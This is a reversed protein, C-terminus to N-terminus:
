NNRNKIVNYTTYKECKNSVLKDCTNKFEEFTCTKVNTKREEKDRNLDLKASLVGWSTSWWGTSVAKYNWVTWSYNRKKFLDFGRQWQTKEEFFTFEGILVPVNYDRTINWFDTVIYFLDYNVDDFNYWHYEYQVNKWNYDKPNPLNAFTWCGEMTIVHNDNNDRIVKYLKDFYDWIKPTTTGNTTETPENLLDYSAITASLDSRTNMYHTSIYEWCDVVSEMYTENTWFSAGFETTGSHELGNQSGPVGHLDLIIYLDNEKASEIIKDIYYFAKDEDKRTLDDNLLNRWYIPLRICNLNLEKLTRYDSDNLWSNFYHDFWTDFNADGCNPNTLLAERFDEETFEPYLINNDNDKKITGDENFMPDTAFAGLWGEQIFINGFNVGELRLMNGNEDYLSRNHSQVLGTNNKITTAQVPLAYNISYSSVSAVFIAVGLVLTSVIGLSTFLIIKGKKSMKKKEKEM